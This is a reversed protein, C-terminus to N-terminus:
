LYLGFGKPNKVGRMQLWEWCISGPVVALTCQRQQSSHLDLRAAMMSWWRLGRAFALSFVTCKSFSARAM